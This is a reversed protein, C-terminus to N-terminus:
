PLAIRFISFKCLERVIVITRPSPPFGNHGERQRSESQGVNIGFMEIPYEHRELSSSSIGFVLSRTDPKGNNLSHDIKITSPDPDFGFRTASCCEVESERLGPSWRHMFTRAGVHSGRIFGFMIRRFFYKVVVFLHFLSM